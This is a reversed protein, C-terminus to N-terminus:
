LIDHLELFSPKLTSNTPRVQAALVVAYVGSMAEVYTRVSMYLLRLSPISYPLM